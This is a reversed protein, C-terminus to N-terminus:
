DEHKIRYTEGSVKLLVLSDMAIMRFAKKEMDYVCLLDRKEPDYAMGVGKVGKKVGRRCIMKRYTRRGKSPDVTRKLFVAKFIEGGIADIIARATYKDIVQKVPSM